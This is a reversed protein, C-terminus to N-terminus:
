RIALHRVSHKRNRIPISRDARISGLGPLEAYSAKRRAIAAELAAKNAAATDAPDPTMTDTM